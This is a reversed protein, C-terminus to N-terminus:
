KVKFIIELSLPRFILEYRKLDQTILKEMSSFSRTIKNMILIKSSYVNEFMRIKNYFELLWADPCLFITFIVNQMTELNTIINHKDLTKPFCLKIVKADQTFKGTEDIHDMLPRM